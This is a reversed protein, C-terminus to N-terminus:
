SLPLMRDLCSSGLCRTYVKFDAEDGHMNQVFGLSPLKQNGDMVCYMPTHNACEEHRKPMAAAPKHPKFEKKHPGHLARNDIDYDREEQRRSEEMPKDEVQSVNHPNRCPKERVQPDFDRRGFKGHRKPADERYEHRKHDAFTGPHSAHDTSVKCKLAFHDHVGEAVSTGWSKANFYTNWQQAREKPTMNAYGAPQGFNSVNKQPESRAHDIHAGEWQVHLSQPWSHSGEKQDVSLSNHFHGRVGTPASQSFAGAGRSRAAHNAPGLGGATHPGMPFADERTSAKAAGKACMWDSARGQKAQSEVFRQKAAFTFGAAAPTGSELADTGLTATSLGAGGILCRNVAAETKHRQEDWPPPASLQGPTHNVVNSGDVLAAGMIKGTSQGSVHARNRRNQEEVHAAIHGPITKEMQASPPHHVPLPVLPHLGMARHLALWTTRHPRLKHAWLKRQGMCVARTFKRPPQSASAETQSRGLLKQVQPHLQLLEETDNDETTLLADLFNNM